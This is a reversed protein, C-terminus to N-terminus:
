RKKKAGTLLYPKAGGEVPLPRVSLAVVGAAVAALGHVAQRRTRTQSVIRAFQDFRNSDM